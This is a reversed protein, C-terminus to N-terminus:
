SWKLVFSVLFGVYDNREIFILSIILIKCLVENKFVFGFKM